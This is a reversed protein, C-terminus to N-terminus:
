VGAFKHYVSGKASIKAYIEHFFLLLIYVLSSRVKFTLGEGSKM